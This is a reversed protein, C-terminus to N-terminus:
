RRNRYEHVFVDGQAVILDHDKNDLGGNLVGEAPNTLIQRGQPIAFM